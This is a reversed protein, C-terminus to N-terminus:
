LGGQRGETHLENAVCFHEFIVSSVAPRNSIAVVDARALGAVIGM